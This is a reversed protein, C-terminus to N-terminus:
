INQFLENILNISENEKKEICVPDTTLLLSKLFSIKIYYTNSPQDPLDKILPEDIWYTYNNCQFRLSCLYPKKHPINKKIQEWTLHDCIISLYYYEPLSTGLNKLNEKIETTYYIRFDPM